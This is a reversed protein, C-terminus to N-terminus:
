FPMRIAGRNRPLSESLCENEILTAVRRHGAASWHAGDSGIPDSNPTARVWDTIDIAHLDKVFRDMKLSDFPLPGNLRHYVLAHFKAGRSESLRRMATLCTAVLSIGNEPPPAAGRTLLALKSNILWFLRSYDMFFDSLHPKYNNRILGNDMVKFVPKTRGFFPDYSRQVDTFDNDFVITIVHAIKREPEAAFFEELKVLEQDSGYGAVGLNVVNYSTEGSLIWAFTENDNVGVGQVFSDGVLALTPLTSVTPKTTPHTLRYGKADTSIVFNGKEYVKRVQNLNAECAWGARRDNVVISPRHMLTSSLRVGTEGLLLTLCISGLLLIMKLKFPTPHPTTAVNEKM